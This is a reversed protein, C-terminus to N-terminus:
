IIIGCNINGLDAIDKFHFSSSQLVKWTIDIKVTDIEEQTQEKEPKLSPIEFEDADAHSSISFAKWFLFLSKLVTSYKCQM